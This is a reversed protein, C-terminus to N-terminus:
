LPASVKQELNMSRKLPPITKDKITFPRIYTSEERAGNVSSGRGGDGVSRRANLSDRDRRREEGVSCSGWTISCRGSLGLSRQMQLFSVGVAVQAGTHGQTCRNAGWQATYVKGRQSQGRPLWSRGPDVTALQARATATQERQNMESGLLIQQSGTQCMALLM